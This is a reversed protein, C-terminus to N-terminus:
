NIKQKMWISDIKKENERIIRNILISLSDIKKLNEKMLELEQKQKIIDSKSFVFMSDMKVKRVSDRALAPETGCRQLFDSWHYCLSDMCLTEECKEKKSKVQFFYVDYFECGAIFFISLLIILKKM